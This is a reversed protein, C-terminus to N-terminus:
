RAGGEQQALRIQAAALAEVIMYTSMMADPGVLQSILSTVVDAFEVEPSRDGLHARSEAVFVDLMANVKAYRQDVRGQAAIREREEGTM